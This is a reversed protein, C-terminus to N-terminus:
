ATILPLVRNVAAEIQDILGADRLANRVNTRTAQFSAAVAAQAAVAEAKEVLDVLDVHDSNTNDYPGFAVYFVNKDFDRPGFLGVNQLPTVRKLLTESNFIGTLYRGEAVTEVPAWYLKHDIIAGPDEIRAATLATGAKTYM